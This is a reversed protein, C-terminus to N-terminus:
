QFPYKTIYLELALMNQMTMGSNSENVFHKQIIREVPLLKFEDILTDIDNSNKITQIKNCSTARSPYLIDGNPRLLLNM